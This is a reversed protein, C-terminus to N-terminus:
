EVPVKLVQGPYIKDPASLIDKNAEFIETWRKTTNFFKYSIKQLTDDKQVTYIKYEQKAKSTSAPTQVFEPEMEFEEEFQEYVSGDTEDAMAPQRTDVEEFLEAPAETAQKASVASGAEAQAQAPASSAGKDDKNKLEVEVVTVKRTSSLQPKDPDVDAKGQGSIYGQNGTVDTDVRPKDVTYTRVTCGYVLLATLGILAFFLLKKGRDM